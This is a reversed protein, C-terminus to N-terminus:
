FFSGRLFNGGLLISNLLWYNFLQNYCAFRWALQNLINLCLSNLFFFLHSFRDKCEAHVFSIKREICLGIFSSFAFNSQKLLM